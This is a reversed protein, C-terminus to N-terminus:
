EKSTATPPTLAPPLAPTTPNLFLRDNAVLESETTIIGEPKVWSADGRPESVVSRQIKGYENRWVVRDGVGFWKGM